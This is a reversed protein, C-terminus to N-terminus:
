LEIWANVSKGALSNGKIIRNTTYNIRKTVTAIIQAAISFPLCRITHDAAALWCIQM